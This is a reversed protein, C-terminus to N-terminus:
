QRSLALASHPDQHRAQAGGGRDARDAGTGARHLDGVSHRRQERQVPLRFLANRIVLGAHYNAAHTFQLQGAAVDGIAYVRRNTTKLKKNVAIGTRDYNIRAADLDLGDVTAKRGAAVLSAHRRDDGRRGDSEITVTVTGAAHAVRAVKVGSRIVVGERELQALM